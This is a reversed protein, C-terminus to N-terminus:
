FPIQIRPLNQKAPLAQDKEVLLDIKSFMLSSKFFARATRSFAYAGYELNLTPAAM